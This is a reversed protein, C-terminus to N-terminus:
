EKEEVKSKFYEETTNQCNTRKTTPTYENNGTGPGYENSSEITEGKYNYFQSWCSDDGCWSSEYIRLGTEPSECIRYNSEFPKGEEVVPFQDYNYEVFELVRNLIVATEARNIDNKPKYTGDNYGAVIGLKALSEVAETYWEGEKIDSFIGSYAFALPISTIIIGALFGILIKKM